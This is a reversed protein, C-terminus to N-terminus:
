EFLREPLPLGGLEQKTLPGDPTIGSRELVFQLQRVHQASHWTYRELAKTVTQPGTLTAVSAAAVADNFAGQWELLRSIVKGGYEIIEEPRRLGPMSEPIELDLPDPSARGDRVADLFAEAIRFVHLSLMRLSRDRNPIVRQQLADASLQGVYRQAARLVALWRDLLERAPLPAQMRDGMGLFDALDRTSQAWMHREGQAVIPVSRAGLQRM